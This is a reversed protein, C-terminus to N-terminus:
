LDIILVKGNTRPIVFLSTTDTCDLGGDIITWNDSSVLNTRATAANCYKSNGVHFRFHNRRMNQANFGTLIADYSATPLTVGYFMFSMAIVAEVNWGSTDPNAAIAEYFMYKMNTVAATNWGSTDPNAISADWFMYSMDTVAATNWGSTDTNAVRAYGFMYSMDTVAATNWGSTDPNAASAGGFMYRMNTVAATIWGSTDPNAVSAGIFMRSMGTVASTNWGSTDPKAVLAGSFMYRMDTVASTNWGSTDPNAARAGSFMFGMNTVATTNWGSTNPYAVSAGEFMSRMSTVGSFDPTDLARVIMNNAGHFANAMNTWRGTGWQDLSMIKLRDGTNNFYIRPIGYGTGSDDKIRLIYTGAESYACTYSDGWNPGSVNTGPEGANCDVTYDGYIGPLTFEKASSSGTSLNDTKVTIMFDDEPAAFSVPSLGLLLLLSSLRIAEKIASSKNFNTAQKPKYCPICLRLLKLCVPVNM